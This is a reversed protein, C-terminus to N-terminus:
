RPCARALRYDVSVVIAGTEAVITRGIRRPHGREAITWGGGHFYVVVPM